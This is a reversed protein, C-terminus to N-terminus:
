RHAARRASTSLSCCRLPIRSASTRGLPLSRADLPGHRQLSGLEIHTYRVGRYKESPDDTKNELQAMANKWRTQCLKLADKNIPPADEYAEHPVAPNASEDIPFDAATGHGLVCGYRATGNKAKGSHAIGWCEPPDEEAEGSGHCCSAGAITGCWRCFGGRQGCEDFCDEGVHELQGHETPSAVSIGDSPM